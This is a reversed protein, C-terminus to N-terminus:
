EGIEVEGFKLRDDFYIKFGCYAAVIGGLTYPNYKCSPDIENSIEMITDENMFLVPNEKGTDKIYNYIENNLKTIDIKKIISFRRNM